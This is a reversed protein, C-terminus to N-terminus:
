LIVSYHFYSYIRVLTQNRKGVKFNQESNEKNEIRKGKAVLHTSFAFNKM